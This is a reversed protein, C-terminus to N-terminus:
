KLRRLLKNADDVAFHWEVTREAEPVALLQDRNDVLEHLEAAAQGAPLADLWADLANVYLVRNYVSEPAARRALEVARQRERQAAERRGQNTDVTACIQLGKVQTSVELDASSSVRPVLDDCVERAGNRDSAGYLAQALNVLDAAYTERRLPDSPSLELLHKDIETSRKQYALRESPDMSYNARTTLVRALESSIEFNTPDKARLSLALAEADTLLAVVRGHNAASDLEALAAALDSLITVHELAVYADDPASARWQTVLTLAHEAEAVAEHIAGISGYAEILAAEYSVWNQRWVAQAAPEAPSVGLEAVAAKLFQIRAQDNPSLNARMEDIRSRLRPDDIDVGTLWDDCDDLERHAAAAAGERRDIESLALKADCVLEVCDARDHSSTTMGLSSLVATEVALFERRADATRLEELAIDGDIDDLLATEYTFTWTSRITRPARARMKRIGQALAKMLDLRGITDYQVRVDNLIFRMLSARYASEAEARDREAFAESREGWIMKISIASIIVIAALVAVIAIIATRNRRVFRALRERASYERASVLLGAFFRSLDAALERATPYRDSTTSSLARMVIAALDKHVSPALEALPQIEGTGPPKGGLVHYLIAGLGYVDTREDVSEGFRQEPSAYAPTGLATGTQTLSDSELAETTFQRTALPPAQRDREKALGWDLVVVEGFRGVFVNHPKLDRHLIGQEHAYAIADFMPLLQQTLAVRASADLDRRLRKDLPEGQLLPMVFFPFEAGLAGADLVPVIAPHHLQSLVSIEMAFRSANAADERLCKLAVERGLQRDYAVFIRGMGGRGLEGRLEYRDAVVAQSSRDDTLAAALERCSDCSDLHEALGARAEATLEGVVFAAWHADTLCATPEANV